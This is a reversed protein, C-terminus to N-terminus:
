ELVGRRLPGIGREDCYKRYAEAMAAWYDNGKLNHKATLHGQLRKDAPVGPQDEYEKGCRPCILKM